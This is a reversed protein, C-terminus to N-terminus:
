GYQRAFVGVGTGSTLMDHEALFAMKRTMARSESVHHFVNVMSASQSNLDRPPPDYSNLSSDVIVSNEHYLV